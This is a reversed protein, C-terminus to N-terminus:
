MRTSMMLSDRLDGSRADATATERKVIAFAAVVVLAVAARGLRDVAVCVVALVAAALVVALVSEAVVDAEPLAAAEDPLAAAVVPEEPEEDMTLMVPDPEVPPVLTGVIVLVVTSGPRVPRGVRDPAYLITEAETGGVAM